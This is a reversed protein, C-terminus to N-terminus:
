PHVKLRGARSSSRRRRHEHASTSQRKALKEVNQMSMPMRFGGTLQSVKPAAPVPTPKVKKPKSAQVANSEDITFEDLTALRPPENAVLVILSKQIPENDEAHFADYANKANTPKYLIIMKDTGPKGPDRVVQLRQASGPELICFVPSVRYLQNNSCKIKIALKKDTENAMLHRSAGGKLSSFKAVHPAVYLSFDEEDEIERISFM